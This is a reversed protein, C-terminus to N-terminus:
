MDNHGTYIHLIEINSNNEKQGEEELNWVTTGSNCIYELQPHTYINIKTDTSRKSREKVYSLFCTVKINVESLMIEEMWRGEFWMTENHSFLIVNYAYTHTHTHTYIYM